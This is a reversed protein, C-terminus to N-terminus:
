SARVLIRTEDLVRARVQRRFAERLPDPVPV